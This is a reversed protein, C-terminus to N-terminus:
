YIVIKVSLIYFKKSYMDNVKYVPANVPGISQCPGSLGM